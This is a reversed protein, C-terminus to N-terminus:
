SLMQLCQVAHADRSAVSAFPADCLCCRHLVEERRAVAKVPYSIIAFIAAHDELTRGSLSVWGGGEAAVIRLRKVHVTEGAIGRLVRVGDFCVRQQYLVQRLVPSTDIDCGGRVSAGAPRVCVAIGPTVGQGAGEAATPATVSPAAQTYPTSASAAAARKKNSSQTNTIDALPGSPPADKGAGIKSCPAGSRLLDRYPRSLAYAIDETQEVLWGLDHLARTCGDREDSSAQPTDLTHHLFADSYM